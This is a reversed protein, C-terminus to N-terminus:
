RGAMEGSIVVIMWEERLKRDTAWVSLSAETVGMRLFGSNLESLMHLKQCM